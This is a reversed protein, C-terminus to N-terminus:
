QGILCAKPLGAIYAQAGRLLRLTEDAEDFLAYLDPGIDAGVPTDWRGEEQLPGAGTAAADSGSAAPPNGAVAPVAPSAQQCLRVSRVPIADRQKRLTENEDLLGKEVAQLRVVETAMDKRIQAALAIAQDREAEVMPLDVSDRHWGRLTVFIWAVLAAIAVGAAIRGVLRWPVLKLWTMM